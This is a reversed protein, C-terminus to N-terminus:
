VGAFTWTQGLADVVVPLGGATRYVPAGGVGITPEFEGYDYLDLPGSSSDSDDSGDDADGSSGAAGMGSGSSGFTGDGSGDGSGDDDSGSLGTGDGGSGLTGGQYGDGSASGYGLPPSSGPVSGPVSGGYASVASPGGGGAPPSAATGGPGVGQGGYRPQTGTGAGTGTPGGPSSPGVPVGYSGGQTGAPPPQLQGAPTPSAGFTPNTAMNGGGAGPQALYSALAPDSFAQLAQTADNTNTPTLWVLYGPRVGHWKGSTSTQGPPPPLTVQSKWTISQALAGGAAIKPTDTPGGPYTVSVNAVYYGNIMYIAPTKTKPTNAATGPVWAFISLGAPVNPFWPMIPNGPAGPAPAKGAAIQAASWASGVGGSLSAYGQPYEMWHGPSTVGPPPPITAVVTPPLPGAQAAGSWPIFLTTSPLLTTWTYSVFAMNEQGPQLPIVNAANGASIPPGAVPLPGSPGTTGQPLQPAQPPPSSGGSNLLFLGVVGLGAIAIVPSM